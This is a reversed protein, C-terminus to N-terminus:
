SMVIDELNSSIESLAEAQETFENLNVHNPFNEELNNVTEELEELVTGIIGLAEQLQKRQEKNLNDYGILLLNNLRHISKEFFSSL